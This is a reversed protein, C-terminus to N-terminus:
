GFIQSFGKAAMGLQGSALKMAIKAGESRAAELRKELKADFKEPPQPCAARMAVLAGGVAIDLVPTPDFLPLLPPEKGNEDFRTAPDWPDLWRVDALKLERFWDLHWSLTQCVSTREGIVDRAHAGVLALAHAPLRDITIAPDFLTAELVRDHFLTQRWLNARYCRHREPPSIWVAINTFYNLIKELVQRGAPSALFGDNKSPHGIAPELTGILNINVFHHWTADCVVRGRPNGTVRHGDYASVAGFTHPITPQKSGATNGSPVNSWAIVEPLVRHGSADQPYDPIGNLTETVNGPERCEGEHPHDPFVDIRGSRGCFLPHPYRVSRLAGIRTSYLRLQLRQPIDDSQDNFQSGPDHGIQNTDNRRPGGMSVESNAADPFDSWHRMSRVRPLRSCLARGLDGHDGTAFLGGGREMHQQLAAVEANVLTSGDEGPRGPRGSYRPLIGFLWVEDYMEPTFHDPNDFRFRKIRRAIGSEAALMEADSVNDIHALTLEFRAYGPARDRLCRIFTSLGFDGEGFNLNGDTVILVKTVCRAWWPHFLEPRLQFELKRRLNLDILDRFDPRPEPFPIPLPQPAPM